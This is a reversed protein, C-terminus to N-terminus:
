SETSADQHLPPVGHQELRTCRWLRGGLTFTKGPLLPHADGGVEILLHPDARRLHCNAGIEPLSSSSLSGTLLVYLEDIEDGRRIILGGGNHALFSSNPNPHAAFSLSFCKHSAPDSSALWVPVESQWPLPLGKRPDVRGASTHIGCSSARGSARGPVLNGDWLHYGRDASAVTFHCGSLCLTAHENVPGEPHFRYLALSCNRRSRGATLENVRFFHIRRGSEDDHLTVGIPTPPLKCVGPEPASAAAPRDGDARAPFLPIPTWRHERSHRRNGPISTRTDIKLNQLINLDAARDSSIDGINLHVLPSGHDRKGNELCNWAFSGRFEKNKGDSQYTLIVESDIEFGSTLPRYSIGVERTTGLFFGHVKKGPIAEQDLPNLIRIQLNECNRAEKSRCTLRFRFSSAQGEVFERSEDFELFIEPCRNERAMRQHFADEVESASPTVAEPAGTTEAVTQGGLTEERNEPEAIEGVPSVLREPIEAGCSECFPAISVIRGCSPCQITAPEPM